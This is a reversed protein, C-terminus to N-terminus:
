SRSTLREVALVARFSPGSGPEEAHSREVAGRAPMVSMPVFVEQLRRADGLSDQAMVIRGFPSRARSHVRGRRCPNAAVARSQDNRRLLPTVGVWRELRVGNNPGSVGTVRIIGDPVTM